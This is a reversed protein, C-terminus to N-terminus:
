HEPLQVGSHQNEDWPLRNVGLLYKCHRCIIRITMLITDLPYLGHIDSFVRCLMPRGWCCCCGCGYVFHIIAEQRFDTYARKFAWHSRLNGSVIFERSIINILYFYCTVCPGLYGVWWSLLLHRHIHPFKPGPLFCVKLDFILWSPYGPVRQVM